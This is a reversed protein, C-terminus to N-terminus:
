FGIRTKKLSMRPTSSRANRGPYQPMRARNGWFDGARRSLTISLMKRLRIMEILMPVIRPDTRRKSLAVFTRRRVEIVIRSATM